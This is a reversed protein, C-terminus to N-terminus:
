AENEEAKCDDLFDSVVKGCYKMADTWGKNYDADTVQSTRNLWSNVYVRFRKVALEQSRKTM